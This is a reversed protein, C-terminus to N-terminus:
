DNKWGRVSCYGALEIIDQGEDTLMYDFLKSATSDAPEKERVAEYYPVTFPYSGNILNENEPSTGNIRIMKIRPNKYLNNMYYYYTYGIACTQNEYVAVREILPGM